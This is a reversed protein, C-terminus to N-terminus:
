KKKKVQDQDIAVVDFKYIGEEKQIYFRYVPLRYPLFTRINNLNPYTLDYGIIDTDDFETNSFAYYYNGRLLQKRAEDISIVPYEGLEKLQSQDPIRIHPHSEQISFIIQATGEYYIPLKTSAQTIVVEYTGAVSESMHYIPDDIQAILQYLEIYQKASALVEDANQQDITLTQKMSLHMLGDEEISLKMTQNEVSPAIEDQQITEKMGLLDKLETIRQLQEEKSLVATKASLLDANQYEYVPLKTVQPYRNGAEAMTKSHIVGQTMGFGGLYDYAEPTAKRWLDPQQQLGSVYSVVANHLRAGKSLLFPLASAILICACAFALVGRHRNEYIPRKNAMSRKLHEKQEKTLQM